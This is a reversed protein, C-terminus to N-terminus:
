LQSSSFNYAHNIRRSQSPYRGHASWCSLVRLVVATGLRVRCADHLQNRTPTHLYSWITSSASITFFSFGTIRDATEIDVDHYQLSDFTSSPFVFSSSSSQELRPLVERVHIISEIMRSALELVGTMLPFNSNFFFLFFFSLLSNLVESFWWAFDM